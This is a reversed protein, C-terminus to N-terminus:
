FKKLEDLRTKFSNGKGGGNAESKVFTEVANIVDRISGRDSKSMAKLNRLYASYFVGTRGGNNDLDQTIVKVLTKADRDRDNGLLQYDEVISSTVDAKAKSKKAQVAQKKIQYMDSSMAVLDNMLM